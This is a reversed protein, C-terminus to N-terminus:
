EIFEKVTEVADMIDDLDNIVIDSVGFISKTVDEDEKFVKLERPYAEDDTQKKVFLASIEYDYVKIKLLSSKHAEIIYTKM